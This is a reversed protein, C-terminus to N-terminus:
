KSSPNTAVPVRAVDDRLYVPMAQDPAIAAALGALAALRAIDRAHPLMRPHLLTMGPFRIALAEAYTGFGTGAGCTAAGSWGAPLRVTDPVGVAELGVGHLSGGSGEFCGWYVEHMRADMCILARRCDDTPTPPTHLVQAAVALLNSVPILPLNVSWALGQALSVAMRVGTFAGPGCGFAIADLQDLEVNAQTLLEEIMPLILEGHGRERQEAREGAPADLWLAASCRETATDLALLKV